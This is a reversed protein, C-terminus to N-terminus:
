LDLLRQANEALIKRKFAKSVQPLRGIWRALPPIRLRRVMSAYQGPDVLPFDSGFLVRDELGQEACLALVLPLLERRIAPLASIDLYVNPHRVAVALTELIWPAGGHAAIITLEPRRHALEDLLFPHSYKMLMSPLPVGVHVLLPLRHAICARYVVEWEPALLDQGGVEGVGKFGWENVAHEIEARTNAAGQAVPDVGVFGIFRTPATAVMRAVMENSLAIGDGPNPGLLCAQRVGGADMRRLLAREPAETPLLQSRELLRLNRKDKIWPRCVPHAHIDVIHM